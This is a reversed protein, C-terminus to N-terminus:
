YSYYVSLPSCSAKFHHWEFGDCEALLEHLTDFIKSEDSSFSIHSSFFAAGTRQIFRRLSSRTIHGTSSSSTSAFYLRIATSFPAMLVSLERYVSCCFSSNLLMEVRYFQHKLICSRQFVHRTAAARSLPM